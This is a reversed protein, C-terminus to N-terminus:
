NENVKTLRVALHPRGPLQLKSKNELTGPVSAITMAWPDIIEARYRGGAPLKLEYEAPANVDFYYLYYQGEVAANPYYHDATPNLGGPAAELIKRLFAIRASEGRAIGWREVV